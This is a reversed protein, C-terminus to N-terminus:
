ASRNGKSISLTTNELGTYGNGATAVYTPCPRSSRRRSSEDRPAGRQIAAHSDATVFYATPLTLFTRRATNKIQTRITAIRLSSPSAARDPSYILAPHHAMPALQTRPNGPAHGSRKFNAVGCSGHVLHTWARKEIVKVAPSPRRFSQEKLMTAHGFNYQCRAHRM